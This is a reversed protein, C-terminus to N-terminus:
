KKYFCAMGDHPLYRFDVGHDNRNLHTAIATIDCFRNNLQRQTGWSRRVFEVCNGGGGLSIKVDNKKSGWGCTVGLTVVWDVDLCLLRRRLGSRGLGALVTLLRRGWLLLGLGSVHLLCPWVRGVSGIRYAQWFIATKQRKSVIACHLPNSKYFFPPHVAKRRMQSTKFTERVKWNEIAKTQHSNAFLRKLHGGDNSYTKFLPLAKAASCGVACTHVHFPLLEDCFVFTLSYTAFETLQLNAIAANLWATPLERWFRLWQNLFGIRQKSLQKTLRLTNFGM